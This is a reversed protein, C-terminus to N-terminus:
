TNFIETKRHMYLKHFHCVASVAISSTCYCQEPMVHPKLYTIQTQDMMSNIDSILVFDM